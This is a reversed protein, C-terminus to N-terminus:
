EKFSSDIYILKKLLVTETLIYLPVQWSAIDSPIAFCHSRQLYILKYLINGINM